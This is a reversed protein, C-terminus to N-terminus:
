TDLSRTDVFCTEALYWHEHAGDKLISKTISRRSSGRPTKSTQCQAQVTSSRRLRKSVGVARKQSTSIPSPWSCWSSAVTSGDAHDECCFPYIARALINRLVEVWNTGLRHPQRFCCHSAFLLNFSTRLLSREVQSCTLNPNCDIRTPQVCRLSFPFIETPYSMLLPTYAIDYHFFFTFLCVIVVIGAAHSGTQSNIASCATWVIYSVLMGIGSWIFLTRRGLSDVMFAASVAAIFNFIQLLGNILTQMFPDTIGVSDLVLTLYYSVVGIGNWQAFAGLSVAIALRKRNGPTQSQWTHRGAYGLNNGESRTGDQYYRCNREDRLGCASQPCRWCRSVEGTHTSSRCCPGEVGAMESVRSALLLLHTARSPLGSALNYSHALELYVPLVTHRFDDM